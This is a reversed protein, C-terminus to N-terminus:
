LKTVKKLGMAFRSDQGIPEAGPQRSM